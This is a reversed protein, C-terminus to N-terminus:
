NRVFKSQKDLAPLALLRSEHKTDRTLFGHRTNRTEHNTFWLGLPQPEVLCDGDMKDRCFASFLGHNPRTNRTELHRTFATSQEVRNTHRPVHRIALRSKRYFPRSEHRTNRTEHVGFGPIDRFLCARYPRTARQRCKNRKKNGPFPMPFLLRHGPQQIVSPLAPCDPLEPGPAPFPRPFATEHGHPRLFASRASRPHIVQHAFGLVGRPSRPEM